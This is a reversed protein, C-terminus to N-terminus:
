SKFRCADIQVYGGPCGCDVVPPPITLDKGDDYVHVSFNCSGTNQNMDEILYSVSTTGVPFFDGSAPISAVTFNNSNDHVLEPAFYARTGRKGDDDLETASQNMDNPCWVYPNEDDNVDVWYTCMIEIGAVYKEDLIYTLITRGIKFESIEKGTAGMYVVAATDKGPDTTTTINDPCPPALVIMVNIDCFADNGAADTAFVEMVTTGMRFRDAFPYTDKLADTQIPKFRDLPPDLNCWWGCEGQEKLARLAYKARDDKMARFELHTVNVNDTVQVERAFDILYRGSKSMISAWESNHRDTEYTLNQPCKLVPSEDDIVRIQFRCIAVNGYNDSAEYTFNYVGASVVDGSGWDGDLNLLERTKVNVNDDADVSFTVTTTSLSPDTYFIVEEPDEPCTLIPPEKDIISVNFDCVTKNNAVAEVQTFGGCFYYEYRNTLAPLGTPSVADGAINLVSSVAVDGDRDWINYYRVVCKEGISLIEVASDPCGGVHVKYACENANGAADTAICTITTSGILFEGRETMSCSWTLGEPINDSVIPAGLETEVSIHRADNEIKIDSPCQIQPPECDQVVVDFNCYGYNQSTDEAVWVIPHTGVQFDAAELHLQIVDTPTYSELKAIAVNDSANVKPYMVSATSQGVDTCVVDPACLVVPNERDVVTITFTFSAKNGYADYGRSTVLTEGMSFKSGRAHSYEVKVVAVNDTWSAEEYFVVATDQGPDTPVELDPLGPSQPPELDEVTVNFSCAAELGGFDRVRVSFSATHGATIQGRFSGADETDLDALVFGSALDVAGIGAIGVTGKCNDTYGVAFDNRGSGARPTTGHSYAFVAVSAFIENADSALSFADGIEGGWIWRACSTITPAQDDMVDVVFTANAVNQADDIAYCFVETRGLSFRSGSPPSCDEAAVRNNDTASHSYEVVTSCEDSDTPVDIPVTPVTIVPPEMDVVLVFYDCSVSNGSSDEVTVSV